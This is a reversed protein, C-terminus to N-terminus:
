GHAEEDEAAGPENSAVKDLGREGSAMLDGEEVAAGRIGTQEGLGLM